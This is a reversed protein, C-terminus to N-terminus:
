RNRRESSKSSKEEMCKQGIHEGREINKRVAELAESLEGTILAMKLGIRAHKQEETVARLDPGNFGKEENTRHCSEMLFRLDDTFGEKVYFPIM